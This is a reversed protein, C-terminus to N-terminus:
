QTMATNQMQFLIALNKVFKSGNAKQAAVNESVKIGCEKALNALEIPIIPRADLLSVSAGAKALAFSVEYASDNNTSIIVKKGPLIGFRHLYIKAATATMIGPM